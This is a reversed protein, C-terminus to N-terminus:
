DNRSKKWIQETNPHTKDHCVPMLNETTEPPITSFPPPEKAEILKTLPRILTCRKKRQNFNQATMGMERALASESDVDYLKLAKDILINQEDVKM